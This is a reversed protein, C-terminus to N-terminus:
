QNRVSLTVDEELTDGSDLTILFTIRYDTKHQGGKLQAVAQTGAIGATSSQLVTSTGPLYQAGAGNAHAQETPATLTVSYPGAGSIQKVQVEEQTVAGLDLTIIAGVKPDAALSLTTAGASAGATLTTSLQTKLNAALLIGSALAAGAPLKGFFEIAFPYQESPQKVIVAAM